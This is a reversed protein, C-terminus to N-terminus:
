KTYKTHGESSICLVNSETAKGFSQEFSEFMAAWHTSSFRIHRHYPASVSMFGMLWCDSGININTFWVNVTWIKKWNLLYHCHFLEMTCTEQRYSEIVPIFEQQPKWLLHDHIQHLYVSDQFFVYSLTILLLLPDVRSPSPSCATHFFLRFSFWHLAQFHFPFYM